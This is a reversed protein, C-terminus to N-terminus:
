PSIFKSFLRINQFTRGIGARTIEHPEFGVMNLGDFKVSGKTPLYIGTIQNFVTTKGAGNPGILGVLDGQFINMNFDNVARLGGFFKTLNEVELLPTKEESFQIM